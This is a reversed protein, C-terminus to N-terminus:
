RWRAPAIHLRSGYRASFQGHAIDQGDRAGNIGAIGAAARSGNLDGLLEPDDTVRGVPQSEPQTSLHDKKGSEWLPGSVLWM